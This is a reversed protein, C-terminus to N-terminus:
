ERSLVLVNRDQDIFFRFNRLANMGLLGDIGPAGDLEMVAINIPEILQNGLTLRRLAIIQAQVRGNATNFVRSTTPGSSAIGLSSLVNPKIATISAGTDILLTVPGADNLYADVQFHGGTRTLPIIDEVGSATDSIDESTVNSQREIKGLLQVAQTAMDPDHRILELSQTAEDTQDLVMQIKALQLFYPSYSPEIGTLMQYLQLLGPQNDQSSLQETYNAVAARIQHEIAALNETRYANARAEYLTQILAEHNKQHRYSEALALLLDVDRYNTQLMLKLLRQAAQNQDAGILNHARTVIMSKYQNGIFEDHELHIADYKRFAEDYQDNALLIQFKELSSKPEQLPATQISASETPDIKTAPDTSTSMFPWSCSDSALLWGVLGGIGLLLFVQQISRM